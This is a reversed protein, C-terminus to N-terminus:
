ALWAEVDEDDSFTIVECPEPSNSAAGLIEDLCRGEPIYKLCAHRLESYSSDGPIVSYTRLAANGTWSTYNKVEQFMQPDALRM